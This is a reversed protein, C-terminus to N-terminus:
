SPIEPAPRGIAIGHAKCFKATGSQQISGDIFKVPPRLGVSDARGMLQNAVRAMYDVHGRLEEISEISRARVEASAPFALARLRWAIVDTQRANLEMVGVQQYYTQYARRMNVPLHSVTGESKAAQWASDAWPRSPLRVVFHNFRGDGDSYAPAGTFDSKGVAEELTVLQRDVCPAVSAAEAALGYDDALEQHIAETTEDAKHQWHWKEIMQEAGLAILVGIVIIGVEGLFERWGHLPKPLHFHM